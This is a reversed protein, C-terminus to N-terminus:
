YAVEPIPSDAADALAKLESEFESVIQRVQEIDRMRSVAERYAGLQSCTRALAQYHFWADVFTPSRYHAGGNEGVEVDRFAKAATAMAPLAFFVDVEVPEKVTCPVAESLGAVAVASTEEIAAQADPVPLCKASHRDSPAEKVSVTAVGPLLANVERQTARDGVVVLTPVGHCGGLWALQEAEGADRGNVRLGVLGNNTHSIFGRRTGHAAHQGLLLLGAYDHLRGATVLPFLVDVWGGGLLRIGEELTEEIVNGGQGHADFLDIEANPDSRRIGRASANIDGTILERVQQFAEGEMMAAEGVGSAGEVDACILFRDSM